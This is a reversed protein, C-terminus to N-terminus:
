RRNFPVQIIQIEAGQIVKGLKLNDLLLKENVLFYERPILLENTIKLTPTPRFSVTGASTTVVDDARVINDMKRIATDFKLKGKGEGVRAAIKAEEIEVRQAEATQYTSMSGRIVKIIEELKSELPKFLARANKLAENMPKTVTERKEKVFDLRSNLTSLIETAEKMALADNIELSLASQMIPNMEKELITIEKTNM